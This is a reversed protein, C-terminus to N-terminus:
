PSGWRPDGFTEDDRLEQLSPLALDHADAFAAAARIRDTVSPHTAFWWALLAPPDPDALDRVTFSRVSRILTEPDDTLELARHDASAEVRRSQGNVLPLSVLQLVAVVALVPAVLRPDAPGRASILRGLRRGPVVLWRFLLVAPVLGAVAGLTGRLVDQYATHALEHAAVMAVQEPPLDLLNDYLVLSRSPGFGAVFANVRTTRRSADGVAIELGAMDARQLVPELEAAVAADELPTTSLFLPQVLVPYAVSLVVALAALTGALPWHWTEPRRRVIWVAVAAVLALVVLTLGLSIAWDRFWSWVTDTRFGWERERVYGSWLRLPLAVLAGSLTVVVAVLAGRAPSDPRSGAAWAILRRGPPTLVLLVPVAVQLGVLILAVVRRPGVYDAVLALLQPDFQDLSTRVDGIPPATPRWITLLVGALVVIVLVVAIVRDLPRTPLLGGNVTM